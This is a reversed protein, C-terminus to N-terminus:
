HGIPVLMMGYPQDEALERPPEGPLWHQFRLRIALRNGSIDPIIGRAVDAEPLAIVLLGFATNRDPNILSTGGTAMKNKWGVFDNVMADLNNVADCLPVLAHHLPLTREDPQEWITKIFQQLCLRHGLFDGKKQANLYANILADRTLLQVVAPIGPQLANVHVALKECTKTISSQYHPLETALKNLYAEVDHFLGILEALAPKRGNDGQLSARLDCAAHLWAQANQTVYANELSALTDRLEIFSRMRPSLAFSFRVMKKSM